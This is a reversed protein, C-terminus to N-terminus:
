LKVGQSDNPKSPIAVTRTVEGSMPLPTIVWAM